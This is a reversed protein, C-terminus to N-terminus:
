GRTHRKIEAAQENLIALVTAITASDEEWWQSPATQTAVAIECVLRARSGKPFRPATKRKTM